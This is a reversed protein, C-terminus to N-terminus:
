IPKGTGIINNLLAIMAWQCVKYFAYEIGQFILKM